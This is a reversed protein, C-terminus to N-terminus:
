CCHSVNSLFLDHVIYFFVIIGVSPISSPLIELSKILIRFPVINRNAASQHGVTKNDGSAKQNDNEAPHPLSLSSKIARDLWIDAAEIM